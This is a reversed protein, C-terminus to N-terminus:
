HVPDNYRTEGEKFEPGIKYDGPLVGRMIEM